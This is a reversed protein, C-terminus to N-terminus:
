KKTTKKAAVKRTAPKKATAKKTATRKRPKAKTTTKAKPKEPAPAPKVGDPHEELFTWQEQAQTDIKAIMTAEDEMFADTTGMEDIRFGSVNLNEADTILYINVPVPGDNEFFQNVKKSNEFPLNVIGTEIRYTVTIKGTVELQAQALHGIAVAESVAAIVPALEKNLGSKKVVSATKKVEFHDYQSGEIHDMFDQVRIDM